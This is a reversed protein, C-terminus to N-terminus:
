LQMMPQATAKKSSKSTGKVAATPKPIGTGSHKPIGTGGHKPVGTSGNKSTNVQRDCSGSDSNKQDVSRSYNYLSGSDTVSGVNESSAMVNKVSRENKPILNSSDLQRIPNVRVTSKHSFIQENYPQLRQKPVEIQADGEPENCEEDRTKPTPLSGHSTSGGHRPFTNSKESENRSSKVKSLRSSDIDKRGASAPKSSIQRILSSNKSGLSKKNLSKTIVDSLNASGQMSMHSLSGLINSKAADTFLNSRDMSSSVKLDGAVSRTFNSSTSNFGNILVNGVKERQKEKSYIQKSKELLSNNKVTGNKNGETSSSRTRLNRLEVERSSKVPCHFSSSASTVSSPRFCNSELNGRGRTMVCSRPQPIFSGNPSGSGSSRTSSIKSIISDYGTNDLMMRSDALTVNRGREKYNDTKKTVSPVPICTANDRLGSHESISTRSPTPLKSLM